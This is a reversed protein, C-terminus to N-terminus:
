KAAEQEYYAEAAAEAGTLLVEGIRVHRASGTEFGQQYMYRDVLLPGSVNLYPREAQADNFGKWWPDTSLGALVPDRIEGDTTM